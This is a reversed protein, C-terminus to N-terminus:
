EATYGCVICSWGDGVPTTKLHPCRVQFALEAVRHGIGSEKFFQELEERQKVDKFVVVTDKPRKQGPKFISKEWAEALVHVTGDPDSRVLLFANHSGNRVGWDIGIAYVPRSVDVLSDLQCDGFHSASCEICEPPDIGSM